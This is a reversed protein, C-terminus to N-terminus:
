IQSAIPPFIKKRRRSIESSFYSQCYRNNEIRSFTKGPAINIPHHHHFRHSNNSQEGTSEERKGGSDGRILGGYGDPIGVIEANKVNREIYFCIARIVANLGSCDGGSTLIGFKM